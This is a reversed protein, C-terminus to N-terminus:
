TFENRDCSSNLRANTISSMLGCPMYNECVDKVGKRKLTMAMGEALRSMVVISVVMNGLNVFIKM